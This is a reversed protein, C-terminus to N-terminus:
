SGGVYFVQSCHPCSMEGALDKPLLCKNSCHPCNYIELGSAATPVPQPAPPYQNRSMGLNQRCHPCIQAETRIIEACYPCQKSVGSQLARQELKEKNAPLAIALVLGAPWCFLGLFVIWWVSIGRRHAVIGAVSGALISVFLWFIASSLDDM